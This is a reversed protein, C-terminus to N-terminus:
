EPDGWWNHSWIRPEFPPPFPSTGRCEVHEPGHDDNAHWDAGEEILWGCRGCRVKGSPVREELEHWSSRRTGNRGNRGSTARNCARHEPGSYVGEQNDDHGLDFPEGPDIPLKCRACLVGGAAVLPAWSARIRQHLWGYRARKEGARARTDARLRCAKSCFRQQGTKPYYHGGCGSCVREAM